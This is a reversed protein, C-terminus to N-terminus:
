RADPLRFRLTRRVRVPVQLPEFRWRSVAAIAERDFVDPPTASEVEVGSVSGDVGVTFMLRVEGEIRRRQAQPPYRPAPTAVPRPEEPPRAATVPPAPPPTAPPAAAPAPAEHPPTPTAPAPTEAATVPTPAPASPTAAVAPAAAAAEARAQAEARAAAEAEARRDAEALEAERRAREAVIADRLRPLAPATADIREIQVALREGEAVDGAAIAREAAILAYPALDVLAEQLGSEAPHRERLALYHDIANDGAPAYVRQEALALRAAERLAAEDLVAPAAAVPAEAAPVPAADPAPAGDTSAAPDDGGCAALCAALLLPLALRFPRRHPVQRNM